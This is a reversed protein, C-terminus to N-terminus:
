RQEDPGADLGLNQMMGDGNERLDGASMALMGADKTQPLPPPPPPPGPGSLDTQRNRSPRSISRPHTDPLRTCVSLCAPWAFVLRSLGSAPSTPARGAHPLRQAPRPCCCWTLRARFHSQRSHSEISSSSCVALLCRLPSCCCCCTPGDLMHRAPLRSRRSSRIAPRSALPDPLAFIKHKLLIRSAEWPRVSRGTTEPHRHGPKGRQHQM